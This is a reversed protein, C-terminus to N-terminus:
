VKETNIKRNGFLNPQETFTPQTSVFMSKFCFISCIELGEKVLKLIRPNMNMRKKKPFQKVKTRGQFTRSNKSPRFKIVSLFTPPVKVSKHESNPMIRVETTLKKYGGCRLPPPTYQILKDTRRDTQRDTQSDTQRDTYTHIYTQM